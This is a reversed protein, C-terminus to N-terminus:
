APRRLALLYNVDTDTGLSYHQTLPNFSLGKSSHLELGANRCYQALESPKIFRAYEHTGAPLMKLVYEAGVIALMFSKLNRNLTSMFVWGGPKVLTACAQVVSAPDPVHELMEMCTVVDFSAPQEAALAEVAVERYDVGETGAEMAHLQAVKLPKTSLDIGLVQAGKRAMSDALIGGGCGVDLARLGALPCLGDIWALRLPNIQHLPKFESEPDWWHHALEGFKALEQPDANITM